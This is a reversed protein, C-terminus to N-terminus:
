KWSSLLRGLLGSGASCLWAQSDQRCEGVDGTDMRDAWSKWSTKSGFFFLFSMQLEGTVLVPPKHPQACFSDVEPSFGSKEKQPAPNIERETTISKNRERQHQIERERSSSKERVCCVCLWLHKMSLFCFHRCLIWPQKHLGLEQSQDGGPAKFRSDCVCLLLFGPFRGWFPIEEKGLGCGFGSRVTRPAGEGGPCLLAGEWSDKLVKVRLAALFEVPSNQARHLLM